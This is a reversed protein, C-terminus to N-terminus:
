DNANVEEMRIYGIMPEIENRLEYSIYSSDRTWNLGNESYSKIGITGIQNYIEECCRLQWNKYKKPLEMESYDQYPYRLSLAVHKSDELLNNLVKEYTENDTFITREFEIREKLLDLQTKESEM